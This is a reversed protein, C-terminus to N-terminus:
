ANGKDYTNVFKTLVAMAEDLQKVTPASYLNLIGREISASIIDLAEKPTINKEM